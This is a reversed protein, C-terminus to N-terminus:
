LKKIFSKLLDIWQTSLISEPHFQFSFFNKWNLLYIEGDSFHFSDIGYKTGFVGFTNYFGVKYKRWNIIIEKQIWQTANQKKRIQFSFYRAILQHWLCIWFFKKNNKVLSDILSLNKLMKEDNDTPNGPGPWILVYDFDNLNKENVQFYKKQSVKMWFSKLFHQIMNTFDDENNVILCTKWKLKKDAFTQNKFFIVKSLNQNREQL